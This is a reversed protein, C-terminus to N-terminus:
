RESLRGEGVCKKGFLLQRLRLSAERKVERETGLARQHLDCLRDRRLLQEAM